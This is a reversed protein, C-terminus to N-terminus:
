PEHPGWTDFLAPASKWLVHFRDRQAKMQDRQVQVLAGLALLAGPEGRVAPDEAFGTIIEVAARADQHLGLCDQYAVCEKVLPTVDEDLVPRFFEATYRLRKFLIRLGHLEAASLEEPNRKTWPLM